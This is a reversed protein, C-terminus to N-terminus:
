SVGLFSLLEFFHERRVPTDYRLYGSFYLSVLIKVLPETKRIAQYDISADAKTVYYVRKSNKPVSGNIYVIGAKLDEWVALKCNNYVIAYSFKATSSKSEVFESDSEIFKNDFMQESESNGALMRGVLTNTRREANQMPEVYHLLCTKDNHWSYGYEPTKDIGLAEFYPNVLSCSNGLLYLRGRTAIDPTERLLTSMVNALTEFEHPIYRHYRDHRDLIAEDLLCRRIKSFTQKKLRQQSTLAVFYGCQEWDPKEESMIVRDAIYASKGDTKFMYDPFENREEFKSFYGQAVDTIESQYRCIETFREEGKTFDSVFQMRLGYTKGIGRGGVVTTIPADYSLTKAWDYWSM